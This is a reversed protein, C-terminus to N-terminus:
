KSLWICHLRVLKIYKYLAYYTNESQDQYSAAKLPPVTFMPMTKDYRSQQNGYMQGKELNCISKHRIKEKM